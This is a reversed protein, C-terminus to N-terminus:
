FFRDKIKWQVTVWLFMKYNQKRLFSEFSFFIKSTINNSWHHRFSSLILKTKKIYKKDISNSNSDNHKQSLLVQSTKKRGRGILWMLANALSVLSFFSLLFFFFFSHGFWIMKIIVNLMSDLDIEEYPNLTSM